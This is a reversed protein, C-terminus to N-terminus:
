RHDGKYGSVSFTAVDGAQGGTWVAILHQGRVLEIDVDSENRSGDYTTGQQGNADEQDLYFDFAPVPSKGPRSTKVTVATVRWYPSGQDPGLQLRGTGSADLVTSRGQNLIQRAM